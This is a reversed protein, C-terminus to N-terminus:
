EINRARVSYGCLLDIRLKIEKRLHRGSRARVPEIDIGRAGDDSNTRAHLGAHVDRHKVGGTGRLGVYLRVHLPAERGVVVLAQSSRRTGNEIHRSVVAVGDVREPEDVSVEALFDFAPIISWSEGYTGVADIGTFGRPSPRLRSNDGSVFLRNVRLYCDDRVPKASLIEKAVKRGSNRERQWVATQEVDTVADTVIAVVAVIVAQQEHVVSDCELFQRERTLTEPAISRARPM